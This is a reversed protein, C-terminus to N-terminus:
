GYREELYTEWGGPRAFKYLRRMEVKNLVIGLVKQAVDPEMRLYDRVLNRPTKGWACQLIIHDLRALMIKTDAITGLPPLDLVVFDYRQRLSEILATMTHRLLADGSRRTNHDPVCPLFDLGSVSLTKLAEDLTATGDLIRMLDAGHNCQLMQSLSSRHLDLDVLLTRAGSRAVLNAYNAALTTKGEGALTSSVGIVQASGGTAALTVTSQVNRLTDALLSDSDLLSMFLSLASSQVVSDTDTDGSSTGGKSAGRASHRSLAATDFIPMYGLFPKGTDVWVDEGVRFGRERIERLIAFVFGAMFGLITAIAASQWLKPFAPTKPVAAESLIRGNTVPYSGEITVREYRSALTQQLTELNAARQALAKLAETDPPTQARLVESRAKIAESERQLEDIRAQMWEAMRATVEMNATLHDALYAEAYTNVIATALEPVPGVYSIDITFSQGIREIGVDRQLIIAASKIAVEEPNGSIPPPELIDAGILGRVVDMAASLTSRALSEPPHLFVPTEHLSLRRTVEEALRLSRLVQIENLLSTDNRFFPTSPTIEGGSEGMRVDVLVTASSYYLPPTTIHKVLGLGLGLATCLILPWRQRRAAALLDGLTTRDQGPSRKLADPGFHADRINMGIDNLM